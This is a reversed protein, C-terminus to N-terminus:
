GELAAALAADEAEQAAVKQAEKAEIVLTTLKTLEALATSLNEMKAIDVKGLKKLLSAVADGVDVTDPKVPVKKMDHWMVAAGGEVNLPKTRDNKFFQGKEIKDAEAVVSKDLLRLTGFTVFWEALAAARSGKPMAGMLANALSTDGQGIGDIHAIISLAAHQIDGDLKKGRTGISTIAKTIAAHGVIFNM